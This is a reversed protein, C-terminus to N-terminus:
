KKTIRPDRKSDNPSKCHSCLSGAVTPDKRGRGARRSSRSRGRSASRSNGRQHCLPSWFTPLQAQSSQHQNEKEEISKPPLPCDDELKRSEVTSGLVVGLGAGGAENLSILLKCAALSVHFRFPPGEFLGTTQSPGKDLEMDSQRLINPGQKVQPIYGLYAESLGESLRIRDKNPLQPTYPQSYDQAGHNQFSGEPDCLSCPDPTNPPIWM